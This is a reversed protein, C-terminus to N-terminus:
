KRRIADNLIPKAAAEMVKLDEFQEPSLSIGSLRQVSEIAPAPIGTFAGIMGERKWDSSLLLFVRVTNWNISLM